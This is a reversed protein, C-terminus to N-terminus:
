GAVGNHQPTKYPSALILVFVAGSGVGSATRRGPAGVAIDPVGDGSWDGGGALASGFADGPRLMLHSSLSDGSASLEMVGKVIDIEIGIGMSSGSVGPLSSPDVALFAIFVAGSGDMGGRSGGPSGIALDVTGDGDVDGVTAVAAGFRDGPLLLGSPFGGMGDGIALVGALSVTSRRLQLLLVIGMANGSQVGRGGRPVGCAAVSLSDPASTVGISGVSAVSAGLQAGSPLFPSLLPDSANFHTVNDVTDVTSLQLAIIEGEGRTGRGTAGVLLRPLVDAGLVAISSGFRDNPALNFPMIAAPALEITGYGIHTRATDTGPYLLFVAGANGGDAARPVTTPAGPAGVALWSTNNIVLSAISFAIEYASAEDISRENMLQNCQFATTHAHLEHVALITGLGSLRSAGVALLVAPSTLNANLASM